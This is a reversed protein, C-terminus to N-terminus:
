AKATDMRRRRAMGGVLGFGAIMMAWTGAEPIPAGAWMSNRIFQDHIYIPVYGSFEGCSSQLGPLCDGFGTGFSLGYSNVSALKGDIFGPGGSDGGAVGVERAGVGFQFFELGGTVAYGIRGAMDNNLTGNDLDSVFSKDIEATGFFNEGAVVDTFFGGFAADGWAYDYINDGERLWGTQSNSGLAGGVTSRGGYGAVNFGSGTLDGGTYLGYREFASPANSALRLVAIDNQDIVEGTYSPNVFYDTVDIAVANVSFPTRENPNGTFFYATTKLPNPTGAGDSVCHGATVISRSSVLSGSCIFRGGPGYDMILAVVGSKNSSPFFLPNGGGVGTIGDSTPTMGVIANQATWQLGDRIGSVINGKANAVGHFGVVASAVAALALVKNKM